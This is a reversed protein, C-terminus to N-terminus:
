WPAGLSAAAAAGSRCGDEHFGWGHYAGAFAISARDLEPLRRQAALTTRTYVPHEYRMRARIHAPAISDTGNLTVLMPTGADLGQLRNMDYTIHVPTGGPECGALRHNWNGRAARRSPLVSIDSHLIVENSSYRFAALVSREAATPEALLRLAQDPHTAVVAAAFNRAEGAEDHITVGDAHRILARVPASTRVTSLQRAIADVYCRSGGTVTRWDTNRSTDLMNHRALFTFLYRAPYDLVLATGSSWVASVLPVAFHQVFYRSFSHTALFDGLTPDAEGDPPSALLSRALRYFRPVQALMRAFSPRLANSPQAFVGIPGRAGAYQLGCGDCRVSLSMTAPRTAIGLEDFLRRLLPYARPNHVIFGSDVAIDGTAMRLEHTHAHGGLRADAEFLTVEATRQLLYSATLGAVGSGIVAVQRRRNPFQSSM